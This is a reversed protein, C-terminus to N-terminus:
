WFYIPFLFSVFNKVVGLLSSIVSTENFNTWKVIFISDILFSHHSLNEKKRPALADSMFVSPFIPFWLSLLSFM